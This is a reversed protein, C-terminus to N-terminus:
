PHYPVVATSSVPYHTFMVESMFSGAGPRGGGRGHEPEAQRDTIQFGLAAAEQRFGSIAAPWAELDGSPRVASYRGAGGVM